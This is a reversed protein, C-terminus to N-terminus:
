VISDGSGFQDIGQKSKANLIEKALAEAKAKHEAVAADQAIMNKWYFQGEDHAAFSSKNADEIAESADKGFGNVHRYMVSAFKSLSHSLVEVAFCKIFDSHTIGHRYNWTGIVETVYIHVLDQDDASIVEAFAKTFKLDGTYTNENQSPSSYERITTTVVELKSANALLKKLAATDMNNVSETEDSGKM